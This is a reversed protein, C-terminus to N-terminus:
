ESSEEWRAGSRFFNCLYSLNQVRREKDSDPNGTHWFCRIIPFRTPSHPHNVQPNGWWSGHKLQYTKVEGWKSEATNGDIDVAKHPDFGPAAIQSTSFLYGVWQWNDVDNSNHLTVAMNFEYLYSSGENLTSFQKSCIGDPKGGESGRSDDRPCILVDKQPLYDPYLNRLWQPHWERHTALFSDRYMMLATGIQKMNNKCETDRGAMRARWLVPVLIGALVTLIVIVVLLEMLTFGRRTKM